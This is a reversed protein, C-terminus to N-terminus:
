SLGTLGLTAFLKRDAAAAANRATLLVDGHFISNAGAHFCLAQLAEDMHERGASLRVVARPMIIRAAAVTRVLEFGDVPPAAELPTGGVRILANIPVSEPPEPLSALTALMAARDARTEGMGVIGGCCVAIGADRVRALTDLRDAYTRTSIIEGYFDESTDVNHNYFDLGADKLAQAQPETLMGLTCCTELGLAKVERVMDCERALDRDTPSRWAAGMCFRTAGADKARKAAAAVAKADMLAERAVGTDYHASQPCYACDEPCGGTKISLLTAIEIRNPDFHARHVSQARHLLDNFPLGILAIAEDTTWGRTM